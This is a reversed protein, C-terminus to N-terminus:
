SDRFIRVLVCLDLAPLPPFYSIRGVVNCGQEHVSPVEPVGDQSIGRLLGASAFWAPSFKGLSFACVM